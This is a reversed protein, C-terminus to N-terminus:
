RLSHGELGDSGGGERRPPNQNTRNYGPQRRASTELGSNDGTERGVFGRLKLLSGGAPHTSNRVEVGQKNKREDQQCKEEEEEEKGEEEKEKEKLATAIKM